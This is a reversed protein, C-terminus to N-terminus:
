RGLAALRSATWGVGALLGAALRGAAILALQGMGCLLTLAGWGLLWLGVWPTAVAVIAGAARGLGPTSRALKPWFALGSAMTVAEQLSEADLVEVCEGAHTHPLDHRLHRDVV